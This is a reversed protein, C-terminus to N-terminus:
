YITIFKRDYKTNIFKILKDLEILREKKSSIYVRFFDYNNRIVLQEKFIDKEPIIINENIFYRPHFRPTDYEIILNFEKIYADYFFIHQNKFGENDYIFKENEGFKIEINPLYKQLTSFFNFCEKSYKNKAFRINTINVLWSEYRIQGEEKGYKKIFNELCCSLKKSHENYKIIGEKEGYKEIYYEITNKYALTKIRENYIIRGKEEGYIRISNELTPKTLAIRKNREEIAQQINGNNKEIFHKLSTSDKKDNYELSAKYFSKINKEFKKLGEDKGYTKIYWEKNRAQFKKYEEDNSHNKRYFPSKNRNLIIENAIKEDVNYIISVMQISNGNLKLPALCKNCYHKEYNQIKPYDVGIIKIIIESENRTINFLLNYTALKDCHYCKKLEVYKSLLDNIKIQRGLPRLMLKLLVSDSYSNLNRSNSNIYFLNEFINFIIKM